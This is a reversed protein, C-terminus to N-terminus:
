NVASRVHIGVKQCHNGSDAGLALKYPKHSSMLFSTHLSNGFHRDVCVCLGLVSSEEVVDQLCSVNSGHVRQRQTSERM